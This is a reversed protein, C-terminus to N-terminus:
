HPTTRRRYVIAGICVLVSLGLYTFPSGGEPLPVRASISTHLAVAAPRNTLQLPIIPLLASPVGMVGGTSSFPASQARLSPALCVILAMVAIWVSTGLLRKM